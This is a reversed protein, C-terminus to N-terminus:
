RPTSEKKVVSFLMMADRSRLEIKSRKSANPEQREPMVPIEYVWLCLVKCM